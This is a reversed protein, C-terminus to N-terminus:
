EADDYRSFTLIDSLFLLANDSAVSSMILADFRHRGYMEAMGSQRLIYDIKRVFDKLREDKDRLSLPSPEYQKENEINELLQRHFCYAFYLIILTHRDMPKEVNENTGRKRSEKDYRDLNPILMDKIEKPLQYSIGTEEGPNLTSRQYKGTSDMVPYVDRFIWYLLDDNNMDVKVPKSGPKDKWYDYIAECLKEKLFLYHDYATHSYGDLISKNEVLFQVLRSTDEVTKYGSELFRTNGDSNVIQESHADEVEKIISEADVYRLNNQICFLYIIEKSEKFSFPDQSCAKTLFRDAREPDLDFLFCLKIANEKSPIMDPKFGVVEADGSKKGDSTNWIFWGNITKDQNSSFIKKAKNLARIYKYLEAPSEVGSVEVLGRSFDMFGKDDQILVLKSRVDEQWKSTFSEIRSEQEITLTHSM